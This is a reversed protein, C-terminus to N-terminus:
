DPAGYRLHLLKAPGSETVSLVFLNDFDAEAIAPSEAAGLAKIVGPLTNSHGAVVVTKGRHKERIQAVLKETSAADIQTVPIKLAQALPEVTQQTRSYQTAYIASVGAKELAHRLAAARKRGSESLPPDDAPAAAKEAHRVLIVTTEDSGERTAAAVFVALLACACFSLNILCHPKRIQLMSYDYLISRTWTM